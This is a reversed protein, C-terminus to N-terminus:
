PLIVSELVKTFEAKPWIFWRRKRAEGSPKSWQPNGPRPDGKEMLVIARCSLIEAVLGNNDLPRILPHLGLLNHTDRLEWYNGRERYTAAFGFPTSVLSGDGLNRTADVIAVQGNDLYILDAMHGRGEISLGCAEIPVDLGRVDLEIRPRACQVRGYLGRLLRDKFPDCRGTGM